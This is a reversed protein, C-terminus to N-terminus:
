SVEQKAKWVCSNLLTWEVENVATFLLYTFYTFRSNIYRM